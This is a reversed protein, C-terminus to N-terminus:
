PLEYLNRIKECPSNKSLEEAYKIVKDYDWGHNKFFTVENGLRHLMDHEIHTLPITKSDCTKAGMSKGEARLLHHAVAPFGSLMSGQEAVFRLHIKSRIKM